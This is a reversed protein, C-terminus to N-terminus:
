GPLDAPANWSRFAAAWDNPATWLRIRGAAAEATAWAHVARRGSVLMAEASGSLATPYIAALPEIQGAVVPVVGCGPAALEVLRRLHAPEIGAMDVALVLLLGPPAAQLGAAIGALPGANAHKDHVRTLEPWQWDSAPQVSVFIREVGADRLVSTQREVLTRGDPLELGAKDRGMRSSQGGALILGSLM